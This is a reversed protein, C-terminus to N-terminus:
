SAAGSFLTSPTEPTMKARHDTERRASPLPPVLLVTGKVLSRADRDYAFLNSFFISRKVLIMPDVDVPCFSLDLCAASRAAALRTLAAKAQSLRDPDIAYFILADIDAPIAADRLFSGGILALRWEVGQTALAALQAELTAIMARRREDTGLLAAFGPLDVVYPASNLPTETRLGTCFPPFGLSAATANIDGCALRFRELAESM